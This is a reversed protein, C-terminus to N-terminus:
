CFIKLSLKKEKKIFHYDGDPGNNAYCYGTQDKQIISIPVIQYGLSEIFPISEELLKAGLNYQVVQLEVVLHKVNKLTEKAGKLIDLECGQVDIKIMEPLPLNKEKVISDLTRTIRKKEYEKSYLVAAAPSYEINEKYYSNGGISHLNEYFIIEQYDKDSLLELNYRLNEDYEKYFNELEKVADFAIIEAGEWITKAHKTWHLVASGIDYIVKPKFNFYDRIGRLYSINHPPLNYSKHINWYHATLNEM